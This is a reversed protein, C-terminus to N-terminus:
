LIVQNQDSFLIYIKNAGQGWIGKQNEKKWAQLLKWKDSGMM